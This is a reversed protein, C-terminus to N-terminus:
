SSVALGFEKVGGDVEQVDGNRLVDNCLCWLSQLGGFFFSM